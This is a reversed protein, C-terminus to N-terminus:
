SICNSDCNERIGSPCNSTSFPPRTDADDYMHDSLQKLHAQQEALKKKLELLKEKERQRIAYDENAKERKQFADSHLHHCHFNTFMSKQLMRSRGGGGGGGREGM